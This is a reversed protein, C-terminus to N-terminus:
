EKEVVIEPPNKFKSAFRRASCLASARTSFSGYGCITNGGRASYEWWFQNYIDDYWVVIKHKSKM